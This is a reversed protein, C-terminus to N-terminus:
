DLKQCKKFLWREYKKSTQILKSNGFKDQCKKLGDTGIRLDIILAGNDKLREYIQDLYTEVPYHFGCSILSFILDFQVGEFLIKNDKAEQLFIRDEKIGNAILNQKAIELSNYFSGSKQYGYHLDEDITTKDLLYINTDIFFCEPGAIGCGIDLVNLNTEVARSGFACGIMEADKEYSEKIQELTASTRQLKAYKEAEPILIM